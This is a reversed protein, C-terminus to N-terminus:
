SETKRDKAKIYISNYKIYEEAIYYKVLVNKLNIKKIFRTIM